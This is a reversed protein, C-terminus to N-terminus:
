NVKGQHPIELKTLERLREAAQYICANAVGDDSQIDRSLIELAEILIEDQTMNEIM